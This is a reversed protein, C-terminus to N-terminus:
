NRGLGSERITAAFIDVAHDAKARNAPEPTTPLWPAMMFGKVREKSLNEKAFKALLPTNEDCNWISSCPVQEYGAKDLAIYAELSRRYEEATAPNKYDFFKWYYWTGLLVTKPCNAIFADRHKWALDAWIWARSGGKEVEAILFKLDHWLLGGRRIVQYEPWQGNNVDEEDFGLHFLRPHGFLDIVDRIVDGCLQYYEPTSVRRHMDKMWTDHIASFNLKPVVEFGMARLRKLEARLKGAPWSGDVALEPHSPYVPFEGLDIVLQNCGAERLRASLREWESYDFRAKDSYFTYADEPKTDKPMDRLHTDRWMNMGFHVLYSWAFGDKEGAAAVMAVLAIALITMLRKM